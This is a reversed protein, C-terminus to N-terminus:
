HVDIVDQLPVPGRSEFEATQRALERSLTHDDGRHRAIMARRAKPAVHCLGPVDPNDRCAISGGAPAIAALGEASRKLGATTYRRRSPRGCDVCPITAPAPLTLLSEGLWGCDGCGYDFMMKM